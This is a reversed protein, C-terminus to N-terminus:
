KVKSNLPFSSTYPVHHFLKIDIIDAKAIVEGEPSFVVMFAIFM